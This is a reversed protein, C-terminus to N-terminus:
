HDNAAERARKSGGNLTVVPADFFVVIAGAPIIGSLFLAPTVFGM